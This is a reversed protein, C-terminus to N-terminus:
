AEKRNNELYKEFQSKEKKQTRVGMKARASVSLGLESVYKKYEAMASRKATLLPTEQSTKGKTYDALGGAAKIEIQCAMVDDYAICAMELTTLDVQNLLNMNRLLNVLERWKKKGPPYLHTPTPIRDALCANEELAGRRRSPQDTGQLAKLEPPKKYSMLEEM